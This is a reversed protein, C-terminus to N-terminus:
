SAPSWAPGLADATFSRVADAMAVINEPPTDAQVTHSPAAILGGRLGDFEEVVRRTARRVEDPTGHPLLEQVDIGGHFVMRGGFEAHLEAPSMGDALPQAPDLAEIGADILDPILSRVAGCSHLMVKAESNVRRLAEHVADWRRRLVPLFVEHIIEPPYLLSRQTGLDEGAVKMISLRAGAADIAALDHATCVPEIRDLLAAIFDRDTMVRTLWEQLGLLKSAIELIPGGFRGVLALDTNRFDAEAQEHLSEAKEGPDAAPWPYDGLDRPGAGALPRAAVEYYRGEQQHVLRYEVGWADRMTEPVPAELQPRGGFKVSLCDVGLAELLEPAPLAEMAATPKPRDDLCVGLLSRLKEFASLTLNLDLPARDVPQFNLAAQVRERSTM